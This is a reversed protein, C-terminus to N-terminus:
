SVLAWSLRRSVLLVLCGAGNRFLKMLRGSYCVLKVAHGAPAAAVVVLAPCKSNQMSPCKQGDMSHACPLARVEAFEERLKEALTDDKEVAVIQAGTAILHRTLNGTGPGVEMVLDDATVGAARVINSLISDDTCFNQGLSRCAVIQQNVRAKASAVQQTVQSCCDPAAHM